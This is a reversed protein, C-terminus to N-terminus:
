KAIKKYSTNNIKYYKSCDKCQLLHQLTGAATSTKKVYNFDDSGCGPCTEKDGNSIMGVHTNPKIYSDLKHYVRELLEVDKSCYKVMKDMSEKCNDEMINTWLSFGGTEMKNEGLLIEALYDLKNSNFNFGGRRAKKLTDLSKVYAPFALGHIIARTRVWPIDFRDGNHGIIEDADIVVDIFVELMTKDCQKEDWTLYHVKEDHEYKWCICIIRREQIINQPPLNLKYGARWSYMVNPSTEIDFFVRKFNKKGADVLSDEERIEKKIKIIDDKTTNLKFALKKSGWKLYGRNEKLFEKIGEM